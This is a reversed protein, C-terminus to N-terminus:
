GDPRGVGTCAGLGAVSPHARDLCDPAFAEVTGAILWGLYREALSYGTWEPREPCALMGVRFSAELRRTKPRRRGLSGLHGVAARTGFDAGLPGRERFAPWSRAVSAAADSM